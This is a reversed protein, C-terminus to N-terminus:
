QKCKIFMSTEKTELKIYVNLVIYRTAENEKCLAFENWGKILEM